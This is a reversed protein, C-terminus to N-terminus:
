YTIVKILKYYNTDKNFVVDPDREVNPDDIKFIGSVYYGNCKGSWGFDCHVM